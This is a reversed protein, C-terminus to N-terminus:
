TVSPGAAIRRRVDALDLDYPGIRDLVWSAGRDLWPGPDQGDRLDVVVDFDPAVSHAELDARVRDLDEAGALDIVFFGDYASARRLPAANGFRGALWIPVRPSPRFTVGRATYHEGAHDTHEGGLLSTLVALGEDLMRGRVRPDPEDGFASFEGVWDDGLGLGLVLRGGSMTALSAAQRALVQPRRRALPTVMPGLLVRETRMAIAACCAWVDAVESIREGYQLHDWVFVGDWGAAEAEAALDGVLRPDALADFPALFIGRRTTM